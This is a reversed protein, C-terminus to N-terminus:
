IFVPPLHKNLKGAATFFSQFFKGGQVVFLELSDARFEILQEFPKIARLFLRM